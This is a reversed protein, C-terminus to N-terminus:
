NEPQDLISRVKRALAMPTFPKQIFRKAMEELGHQSLADDTYGSMYLVRLGPKAHRAAEALERGSMGPMIVDTVLLVIAERHTRLLTLAESGGSAPLVKYGQRELTVRVLTRLASEDEVLLITESGRPALQSMDSRSVTSTPETAPLLITFTTGIGVTSEVAISGGAQKVVGHVVALGLGTGKGIGKTTFFPEFIKDRIEPSMGSGTDAVRFSVYTGPALDPHSPNGGTRIQVRRTEITLRGGVPMADRANVALNMLVQELQGPDITVHLPNPDTLVVMAVDEGILRRLLKVSEQVVENLDILKPEIVSKRSFALLQQTLRAAREGADLVEALAERSFDGVPMSDLLMVSYGNIVTLLNNFDHAVGGALRGVAEMKQSQRFQEELKRRATLDRVVGTFHREEGLRLETVMLEIPFETGDKRRGVVERGIGVVKAKGSFLYDAIYRDHEGRYPQPMLKSVNFGLIEERSYGFMKETAPNALWVIGHTDITLIADNVTELLSKTLRDARNRATTDRIIKSAAVVKGYQDRLPSISLSVDVRHGGKNLRVTEMQDIKEGRGLREIIQKEEELLETPMIVFYPRGVMESAQYGFLREAGANWSLVIGDLSISVIADQSAEVISALRAQSQESQKRESIDRVISLLYNIGGITIPRTRVEVPFTHGDKKRHITEFTQLRGARIEDRIHGLRTEDILPDFDVPSKGILEERTYGLSNCAQNNVDVVGNDDVLFFADAAQDVVARYREESERLASEAAKRESMDRALGVVMRRGGFEFQRLRVEVPFETGNKRRYRSEFSRTKGSRVAGTSIATEASNGLRDFMSRHAGILEGRSYELSECTQRNVDLLAGDPSELFLMDAAQDICARYREEGAALEAKVRVRESATALYQAVTKAFAIQHEDLSDFDRSAFSITGLLRDDALLPFATYCRLGISRATATRPDDTQRMRPFYLDEKMEACMGCLQEGLLLRSIAERTTDDIGQAYTLILDKGTYQYSFAVDCGLYAAARVMASQVLEPLSRDALLSSAIDSLLRFGEAQHTRVEEALHRDTVDVHMLVAGGSPVSTAILEFWRRVFPSHCPYELRFVPTKGALVTRIGMAARAAEDSCDGSAIDCADLYNAGVGFTVRNVSNERAFRDWAENVATIEGTSDLLAVHIPLVELIISRQEAALNARSDAALRAAENQKQRTLDRATSLVILNEGIKVRKMRVEVPFTTGDKRRHTDEFEVEEGSMVRNALDSIKLEDSPMSFLLHTAGILEERSYGLSDCAKRNVDVIVGQDAQLFFADAAYESFARFQEQSAALAKQDRQHETVDHCVMVIGSDGADESEFPAVSILYSKGNAAEVVSSQSRPDAKAALRFRDLLSSIEPGCVETCQRGVINASPQGLCASAAENAFIFVGNNNQVFIPDATANVLVKILQSKRYDELLHHRVIRHLPIAFIALLISGKLGSILASAIPRSDFASLLGDTLWIWILGVLLYLAVIRFATQTPKRDESLERLSFQLM